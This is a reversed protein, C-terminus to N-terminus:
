YTQSFIQHLEDILKEKPVETTEKTKMDRLSFVGKDVDKPGIIIVIRAGSTDATELHKKLRWKFPNCLINYKERLKVTLELAIPIQEVKLPAIYVDIQRPNESTLKGKNKMIELLVADGMGFGVGTLPDGGLISVLDEYRGGGFIARVIEGTSDFGEFVFGTYYDLGRALGFDFVVPKSVGAAQLYQGFLRFEELTEELFPPFTTSQITEEFKDVPSSFSTLRLIESSQEETLGLKLFQQQLVERGIEDRQEYYSLLEPSVQAKLAELFEGKAVLLRRFTMGLEKSSSNGKNSLDNEVYEQMYKEKRDVTQIIQVAKEQLGLNEFLTTFLKRNNVFVNFENDSLGCERIIDIALSLVEVDALVSKEGLIDANLQWFERLRGKQPTEDRFLRPISFWRIPKTYRQQEKALMRALTPTQEPRLVLHRGNIDNVHFVEGVLGEGSKAEFLEIPELSPGEYEVYNYRQCVLKMKELVFNIESWIEPFFDRFGPLGNLLNESDM